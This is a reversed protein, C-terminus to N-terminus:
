VQVFLGNHVNYLLTSVKESLPKKKVTVAEKYFHLDEKENFEFFVKEITYGPFKTALFTSM